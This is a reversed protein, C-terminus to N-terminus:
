AQRGKRCAPGRCAAVRGVAAAIAAARHRLHEQDLSASPHYRGVISRARRHDRRVLRLLGAAAGAPCGTALYGHQRNATREVTATGCRRVDICTDAYAVNSAGGECASRYNEVQQTYPGM